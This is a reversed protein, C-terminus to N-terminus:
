NRFPGELLAEEDPPTLRSWDFLVIGAMNAQHVTDIQQVLEVPSTRNYLGFIGVYIPTKGQVQETLLQCQKLMRDPNTSLGIPTLAQVDGESTWRAYDQLKQAYTPEHSPFVVASILLNPKITRAGTSVEKVFSSVQAKRWAVWRPWLPSSLTLEKPDASSLKAAAHKGATYKGVKKPAVLRHAEATTREQNIMAQFQQRASDTYGWTTQLYISKNVAASAPYRIYDLNLGDIDYRSVMEMLLKKLFTRVEPNAPDLFYHGPEIDSIVPHNVNWNPRQVNRWQPYTHLIPGYLESNEQSNGAFFVQTWLHVKIGEKHAADVWLQIPDGGQYQPHQEPLGYDKMVQSPYATEGQFYTELFVNGVHAKKLSQVVKAVQEPQISAPRIWAGRFEQPRSELTNFYARNAAARCQDAITLLNSSLPQDQLEALQTRCTQAQTLAQHYADPNAPPRAQARQLAADVEYLYVSPTLRIIIEHQTEDLAVQAGPRGFKSLWLAASGHGSIVFGDAPITDDASGTEIIIGNSIVAETGADNTGTSTGYHPTYVIMQNEGRYGPSNAGRPNNAPSPDIADIPFRYERSVSQAPHLISPGTDAGTDAIVPVPSISLLSLLLFLALFQHLTKSLLKM